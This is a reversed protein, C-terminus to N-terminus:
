PRLTYLVARSAKRWPRVTAGDRPQEDQETLAFRFSKPM